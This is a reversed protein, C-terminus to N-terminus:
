YTVSATGSASFGLYIKNGYVLLDEPTVKELNFKFTLPNPLKFKAVQANAKATADVLPKAFQIILKKQLIGTIIPRGVTLLAELGLGKLTASTEASYDIGDFSLTQKDVSLIPHAVFILTGRVNKMVKGGVGVFGVKLYLRNGYPLVTVSKIIAHEDAGLEQSFDVDQVSKDQILTSLQRNLESPLIEIPLGLHFKKDPPVASINPLGVRALSTPANPQLFTRM